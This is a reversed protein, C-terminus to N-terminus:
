DSGPERRVEELRYSFTWRGGAGRRAPGATVTGYEPMAKLADELVSLTAIRTALGHLEFERGQWRLATLWAGEPLAQALASLRDQWLGTWQRRQQRLHLKEQLRLSERLQQERGVFAQLRAADARNHVAQLAQAQVQMAHGRLLLVLVLLPQVGFMLGWFRVARLRQVRRWPLLNVQPPM